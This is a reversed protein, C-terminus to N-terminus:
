AGGGQGPIVLATGPWLWHGHDSNTKGHQRAAEELANKNAEYLEIWKAASGWIKMAIGSLTDGSAVPYAGGGYKGEATDNRPKTKQSFSEINLENTDYIKLPKKQNFIISYKINGYAGYATPQFSAITVDLNIWTETVILNLVTENEIFDKLIRVCEMPERWINSKVIAERRKSIGFFEGDWSVEEVDTGRPTKVAGLSIIDFNQYKAANKTKIQEPLAPFTFKAGGGAPILIIDM